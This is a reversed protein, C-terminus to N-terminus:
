KIKNDDIIELISSTQLLHEELTYDTHDAEEYEEYQDLTLGMDGLASIANGGHLVVMIEGADIAVLARQVATYDVNDRTPYMSLDKTQLAMILKDSVSGFNAVTHTHPSGEPGAFVRGLTGVDSESDGVALLLQNADDIDPFCVIILLSNM